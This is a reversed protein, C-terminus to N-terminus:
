TTTTPRARRASPGASWRPRRSRRARHQRLRRPRRGPHRRRPRNGGPRPSPARDPGEVRRPAADLGPRRGARPRAREGRARSRRSRSPHLRHSADRAARATGGRPGPRRPEPAGLHRLPRLPCPDRQPSGRIAHLAGPALTLQRGHDHANGGQAGRAALPALPRRGGRRALGFPHARRATAGRSRSRRRAARRGRSCPLSLSHREADSGM